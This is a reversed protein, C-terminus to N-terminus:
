KALAKGIEYGIDYADNALTLYFVLIMILLFVFLKKSKEDKFDNLLNKIIKM